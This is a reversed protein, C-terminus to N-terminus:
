VVGESRRGDAIRQELAERNEYAETLLTTLQHRSRARGGLKAGKINMKPAAPAGDAGQTLAKKEEREKIEVKAKEMERMANVEHTEGTEAGEFGKEMNKELARVHADYDAKWKKYFQQYYETDYAAWKGSPLMYYGPYPDTPTPEPPLFDDVKPASTVSPFNIQVKSSGLGLSASLNSPSADTTTTSQSLKPISKPRTISQTPDEVSINKRGKGLSSPLFPISSPHSATTSEPHHVTGELEEDVEEVTVAQSRPNSFVLGPGKGGGLVRQPAVPIPGNKKPAPLMSFLSSSGSGGIRPKKATPQIDEERTEDQSLAPLDIAIRKKGKNARPAPLTLGALAPKSDSATVNSSRQSTVTSKPTFPAPLQSTLFPESSTSAHHTTSQSVQADSDSDDESGSGYGAVLM